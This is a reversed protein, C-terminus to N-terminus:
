KSIVIFQQATLPDLVPIRVITLLGFLLALAAVLAMLTTEKFLREPRQASSGPKMAIMVYQGFLLAVLPLTLLYEVRYKIFFIALSMSGLLAYVMASATLTAESYGAFSLRYKVLLERGHSKVIESYESLRKTAMLFAGSLWYAFIVSSPPLTAADVMAWGILLRLPNNVSESIVDLYPVDKTRMPRVNYVVGQAAFVIAALLMARGVSAAAAIGIAVLM